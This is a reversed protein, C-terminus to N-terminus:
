FDEADFNYLLVSLAETFEEESFNFNEPNVRIGKWQRDTEPIPGSVEMNPLKAVLFGFISYRLRSEDLPNLDLKLENFTRDIAFLFWYNTGHEVIDKIKPYLVHAIKPALEKFYSSPGMCPM